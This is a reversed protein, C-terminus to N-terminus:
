YLPTAHSTAMRFATELSAAFARDLVVLETGEGVRARLGDLALNSWHTDVVGHCPFPCTSDVRYVRAGADLLDNCRANWRWSRAGKDVLIDVRVGSASTALLARMLRYSPVRQVMSVCVRHRAREVQEPLSHGQKFPTGGALSSLAMGMSQTGAAALPPFYNAQPLRVSSPTAHWAELFLRQMRQVIPGRVQIHPGFSCLDPSRIGPGCWAVEGDVVALQRHMPDRWRDLWGRWASRPRAQNLTVGQQCLNALEDTAHLMDLMQAIVQVRVGQQCREGLCRIVDTGLGPAHLLSADLNIHDTARELTGILAARVAETHEFLEALNGELLPEGPEEQAAAAVDAHAPGFPTFAPQSMRNAHCAM